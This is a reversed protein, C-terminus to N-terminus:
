INVYEGWLENLTAMKSGDGGNKDPHLRLAATRYLKKAAAKDSPIEDFTTLGLLSALVQKDSKNDALKEIASNFNHFFNKAAVNEPVNTWSHDVSKNSGALFADWEDDLHSVLEYAEPGAGFFKYIPNWYENDVYWIKNTPDYKRKGSPVTKIMTVAANMKGSDM